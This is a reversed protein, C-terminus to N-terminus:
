KKKMEDFVEKLWDKNAVLETKELKKSIAKHRQQYAGTSIVNQETKLRFIQRGIKMFNINATKGYDSLQSSRHIFKRSAEILAYFPEVENLEFYSKMQIIKAGLHYSHDGFKIDQLQQLAKKFDKKAYYLNALNFALANDRDEPLLNDKYKLIFSETWEYDPKRIGVTVINKFTWHTLYGNKFIIKEDLMLQYVDLVETYYDSRGSNIKKICYNLLYNFLYRLEEQPFLHLNEEIARKVNKYYTEKESQRLMMLTQFYINIVPQKEFDESQNYHALIDELFHCEYGANTVINRSQMDCSIRLKNSHYFLDLQDNKKQLNEDYTRKFKTLFLRDLKDYLHYEDLFFDQNRLTSKSQILHYKRAMKEIHGSLEKELLAEMILDQQLAKRQQYQEQGMFQYVLQLLDSIVNNLQFENYQNTHFLQKHLTEKLLAKDEFDPASEHVVKFLAIIKKNKNFFPSNVFNALRDLEGVNFTKLVAILKSRKM